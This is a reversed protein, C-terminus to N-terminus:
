SLNFSTQLQPCRSRPYHRSPLQSFIPLCSPSLSLSKWHDLSPFVFYGYPSFQKLLMMMIWFTWLVTLAGSCHCYCWAKNLCKLLLPVIVLMRHDTRNTRTLGTNARYTSSKNAPYWRKWQYKLIGWLLSQETGRSSFIWLLPNEHCALRPPSCRLGGTLKQFHSVLRVKFFYSSSSTVCRTGLETAVQGWALPRLMVWRHRM